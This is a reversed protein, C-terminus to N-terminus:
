TPFLIEREQPVSPRVTVQPKESQGEADEEIGASEEVNEEKVDVLTDHVIGENSQKRIRSLRLPWAESHSSSEARLRQGLVPALLSGLLDDGPRVINAGMAELREPESSGCGM